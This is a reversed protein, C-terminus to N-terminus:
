RGSAPAEGGGITGTQDSSTLTTGTTGTTTVITPASLASLTTTWVTAGPENTM